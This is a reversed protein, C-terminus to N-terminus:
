YGQAPDVINEIPQGNMHARIQRLMYRVIATAESEAANHPTIVVRPHRWLPSSQPLPETEFVDLSAAYLAGTELAALIDAEVQLPGRGANILVPGALRPHRGSRSLKRFLDINLIGRTNPTHPLICVLIDVNALFDDLQERGAFCTVGALHKRTRSWGYLKFGLSALAKAAAEGMIGLGMLGVRVEHAAPEPLYKWERRAQQELFESMRRQHWLVHLTVYQVMRGTLDPDVYRVIPVRPLNPDKLIHDVGTGVSVVLELRPLTKLVGPPPIWALAYHIDEIRGVEPWVRVDFDPALARTAAAFQDSRQSGIILLTM